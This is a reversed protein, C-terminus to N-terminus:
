GFVKARELLEELGPENPNRPRGPHIISVQCSEAAEVLQRFTGAAPDAIYAQRNDNYAFMRSNLQVCENCTSCRPTEIYPDGAPREPPAADPTAAGTDSAEAAPTAPETAGTLADDAPARLTQRAQEAARRAYSNNVGGLEQLSHWMTLCRGAERLLVDDVLLKVLHHASDVVLVSPVRDSGPATRAALADSVSTLRDHWDSRNVKAFHGGYRADCAVFDVFTFTADVAASQHAATEYSLHHLPWDADQAPNGAISFRSAWDTGASPDCVFTPFARSELAAAAVLYAPLAGTHGGTGSYVSFLAPGTFSVGRQLAAMHKLLHSSPSQAVYVDNLGIATHVIARTAFGFGFHTPGLSTVDLVDNTQLLVKMPLGASLIELVAAHEAPELTDSALVVLYDPFVGSTEASIAARDFTEFVAEHAAEDYVGDAELEAVEIARVLEAVEARRAWYANLADVASSFAFPCVAHPKAPFFRQSRLVALTAEIRDRRSETLAPSAAHHGLIGAMADFDIADGELPGVSARLCEASRGAPSAATEARLIDSLKQTLVELDHRFRVGKAAQASRWLHGVLRASVTAGCDVVDGDQAIARARALSDSFLADQDAELELAALAWLEFLSGGLGQSVLHRIRRELRLVHQSIRASDADGALEQLIGDMVGSLARVGGNRFLVLPYDYRLDTLTEYRALVAPRVEGPGVSELPSAAHLGRLHFTVHSHLIPNM